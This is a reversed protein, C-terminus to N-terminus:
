RRGHTSSGTMEVRLDFRVGIHSRDPPSVIDQDDVVVWSIVVHDEKGDTEDAEGDFREIGVVTPRTVGSASGGCARRSVIIWRAAPRPSAALPHGGLAQACREWAAAAQETVPPREWCWCADLVEPCQRETFADSQEAFATRDGAGCPTAAEV